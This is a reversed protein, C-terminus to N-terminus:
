APIALEREPRPRTLTTRVTAPFRIRFTTGVGPASSVAIEAGHEDAVWHAIALGLGTGGSARSTSSRYFRDFVHPLDEPAIGTGTDTVILIGQDGQAELSLMVSGEPPTYKM